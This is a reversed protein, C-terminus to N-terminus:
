KTWIAIVGCGSDSGSFEGPLSAAGRYIELGAVESPKVLRDITDGQRVRLRVDDIIISMLCGGPQFRSAGRTNLIRCNRHRIGCDLRVGPADAIMHSIQIPNRREIDAVTFFMGGSVLEGWYKREYFGKVELRRSRPATAVIPAMEVPEPVLGIEVETTIGRSVTVEHALPTYGLHRVSLEHVGVPVGSLIFRGMRNTEVMETRGQVSVAAAAVPNETLADRVEGILRGTRVQGMHLLLRAERSAGAATAVVSEDSSADGFEAWVTAQRADRPACLVLQGDSGADERVPRRASEADTWRLVVTAGPIPVSGSQDFVVVRLVGRGGCDPEQGALDAGGAALAAVAGVTRVFRLFDFCSSSRRM